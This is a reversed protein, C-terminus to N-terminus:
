SSYSLLKNSVSLQSKMVSVLEDLKDLQAVMMSTSENNGSVPISRGDPLPVVAETGHMTLNPQYGSRPGSLIGGNAMSIHPPDGALTNFGFKGLLGKSALDAVQDSQIDLARGMQHLSMGPAAKPNGGSNVNAQEEPSRFASNVQLKKGTLNNYEQAMQVFAAQVNPQMKKFHEESGTGGTFKIYDLADIAPPGGKAEYAAQEAPTLQATGLDGLTSGSEVAAVQDQRASTKGQKNLEAEKANRRARGAGPIMSTLGEVVDALISMAKTVPNIGLNLFDQLNNSAKRQAKEIDVQTKTAEDTTTANKKAADMMARIQQPNLADGFQSVLQANDKFAYFTDAGFGLQFAKNMDTINRRSGKTMEFIVDAEDATADQMKQFVGPMATMLRGSAAVDGAFSRIVDMRMDGSLTENLAELKRLEKAAEMDGALAQQKLEYQKAAFQQEAQADEQKKQLTERDQGTLRSVAELNELYKATEAALTKQMGASNRGLNTQQKVFGAAGKNIEDVSVGMLMLNKGIDSGQIQDALNAFQEAGNFATGGFKALVESNSKMLTGFEGLEDITYGFRQMNTYVEKMGGAGVVGARSIDKYSKYLADAQKNVAGVYAVAAKTMLGIAEGALGLKVFFKKDLYDASSSLADNFVSSGKAGSAMEAGLNKFSTGLQKLSQNLQQTYNKVGLTADKMQQALDKGIPINKQIADNYAEFIQAIEEPTYMDAMIINVSSFFSV